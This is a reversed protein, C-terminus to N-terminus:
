GHKQYKKIINESHAITSILLDCGSLIVKIHKHYQETKKPDFESGVILGGPDEFIQTYAVALASPHSFDDFFNTIKMFQKWGNSDINLLKKNNNRLVKSLAKHVPYNKINKLFYDFEDINPHSFLLAVSISEGFHRM